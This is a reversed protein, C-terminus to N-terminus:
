EKIIRHYVYNSGNRFVVPIKKTANYKLNCASHATARYEQTYHCNDRARCYKKDKM